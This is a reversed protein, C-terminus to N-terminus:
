ENEPKNYQHQIERYKSYKDIVPLKQIEKHLLYGIMGLISALILSSIGVLMQLYAGSQQFITFTEDRSENYIGLCLFIIGYITSAVSLLSILKQAVRM